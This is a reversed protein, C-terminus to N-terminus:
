PSCETGESPRCVGDECRGSACDRAGTCAQGSAQRLEVCRGGSCEFSLCETDFECAGGTPVGMACMGGLSCVLGPRCFRGATGPFDRCRDGIDLDEVACENNVCILQSECRSAIRRGSGDSCAGGEGVVEFDSYPTCRGELCWTFDACEADASCEGQAAVPPLCRLAEDDGLRCRYGSPCQPSSGCPEGATFYQWPACAGCTDSGTTWCALGPSCDRMWRCPADAEFGGTYARRCADSTAIARECNLESNLCEEAAVPDLTAGHENVLFRIRPALRENFATELFRDLPPGGRARELQGMSAFDGCRRAQEFTLADLARQFALIREVEDPLPTSRACGVLGILLCLALVIFRHLHVPEWSAVVTGIFRERLAPISRPLTIETVAADYRRYRM